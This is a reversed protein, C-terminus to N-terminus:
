RTAVINICIKRLKDITGATVLIDGRATDTKNGGISDLMPGSTVAFLPQDAEDFGIFQGKVSKTQASRNAVSFTVEIVNLSGAMLSKREGISFNNLRFQDPGATVDLFETPTVCTFAADDAWVPAPAAALLMGLAAIKMHM